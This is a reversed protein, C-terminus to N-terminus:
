IDIEKLAKELDAPLPASFEVYDGTSPLKFGLRAAHVFQRDLHPTKIGYVRDGAVPYGIAELHVRIQHTRGTEPRVELLTYEGIYRIVHYSTRAERGRSEGVVAMRQRRHPDRGVPAEIIGDEPTLHGKVLVNYVKIVSRKKFQDTLNEHAASNRAVLMVGSTDKDLRHVIGPRQSDGTDPLHSLHALIANVLTHEPHGPAPHVTLGAPKDIVLVDNDEYLIKLPIEEPELDVPAPPPINITIRDGTELKIGSKITSDNVTIHGDRILKQVRTRSLEPFRDTVYRDLRIDPEDVILIFRNENNEPMM